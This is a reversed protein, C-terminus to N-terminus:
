DQVTGSQRLTGTRVSVGNLGLTAPDVSSSNVEHEIENLLQNDRSIQEDTSQQGAQEGSVVGTAGMASDTSLVATAKGAAVRGSYRLGVPLAIMVTLLASATAGWAVRRRRAVGTLLSVPLETPMTASRRESWALSLTKFSEIPLRVAAVQQQCVACWALHVSADEALCGMLAENIQEEQLHGNLYESM